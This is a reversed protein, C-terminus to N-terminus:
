IIGLCSAVAGCDKLYVTMEEVSCEAINAQILTLQANDHWNAPLQEPSRIIAKVHQGKQILQEVLHRGNAGSAGCVLTKM